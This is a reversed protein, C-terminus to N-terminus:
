LWPQWGQWIRGLLNPDTAQDILCDVQERVSQCIHGSIRARVNRDPSGKVIKELAQSYPKNAHVSSKLESITIAAPSWLELKRQANEVKLEVYQQEFTSPEMVSDDKKDKFNGVTKMAENKWDVLPEKVFVDMVATIVERRAHLATLTHVMDTRLLGLADLPLLFNVLQNTLRFPVLEPVPLLIVGTGFSYGFDIPILSGSSMDVLTNALHRDGVGAVYGCISIVSLSKAFQSRLALFSEASTAWRAVGARFTDWPLQGELYRMKQTVEDSSAKQYLNRYCEPPNQSPGGRKMVWDHYQARLNHLFNLPANKGERSLSPVKCLLGDKVVDELVCTNEVFQLLGCSKSVPVVAYTRITLGRRAAQSDRQLISNMVEFLQEIRQDLRLDEGGKVVFKYEKEDSGRMTLIKPRQKSSLCVLTQDFGVLKVHSDPRPECFGSYQGPIEVPAEKGGWGSRSVSSGEDDLSDQPTVAVQTLQDFEAMWKSLHGLSMVGTQLNQMSKQLNALLDGVASMFKKEDMKALKSGNEGLAKIVRKTWDRAFKFNYEGAGRNRMNNVDLCDEYVEAFVKVAKEAGAVICNKMQSLGDKFRQEPFTLDELGRVMGELASSKLLTGLRRTRRRGLPGFDKESVHFPFYLAQPYLKAIDELLPILIGGVEQDLVALMQPIWPIFVWSPVQKIASAFHVHTEPHQGVLSLVRALGHQARVSTHLSVAEIMYKVIVTPYSSAPPLGATSDGQLIRWKLDNSLEMNKSAKLLEDCFLGFNLLVKAMQHSKKLSGETSSGSSLKAAADSYSSYASGLLSVCDDVTSITGDAKSLQNIKMWAVQSSVSAELVKLGLKWDQSDAWPKRATSAIYSLVQLLMDTAETAQIAKVRNAQLCRLKVLGKFFRYDLAGKTVTGQHAAMYEEMYSQAANYAGVRTLGRAAEHFIHARERELKSALAEPTSDIGDQGDMSRSGTSVLTNVLGQFKHFFVLRNQVIDDWAEVGDMKSSPWRHRWEIIKRPFHERRRNTMLDLFEELEVIKQLKEVQRHRAGTALPHLATWHKRFSRYCHSIYFRARDFQDNAVAVTALQTGYDKMLVERKSPDKLSTQIFDDAMSRYTSVKAAGRIFLGLYPEELNPDWLKELDPEESDDSRVQTLTDELLLQWRNLELLCALRQNYWIDQEVQSAQDGTEDEVTDLAQDYLVLARSPDGGLQAELARRSVPKETIKKQYVSLVIDEEGLEKYLRALELWAEQLKLGENTVKGAQGKQRKSSSGPAPTDSNTEHLIEGELMLIGSHFNASKLSARGVLKPRVWITPDELCIAEVSGVFSIGNRTKELAKEVGKAIQGKLVATRDKQRGGSQSYVTRCIVTLLLRAFTGDKEALSSLPALIDEHKIEIDPLEGTRYRRMIRVKTARESAQQAARAERRKRANVVSRITQSRAAGTPIRRRLGLSSGDSTGLEQSATQSPGGIPKRAMAYLSSEQTAQPYSASTDQTQSLTVSYTARIMGAQRPYRSEEEEEEQQSLAAAQSRSDQSHATQSLSFLPTMPLSGGIYSTDITYDHFECDSLPANFVKRTYDVSEECLKLLLVASYQAWSEEVSPDYMQNIMEALRDRLDQSLTSHWFKQLSSRVSEAPDTLGALLSRAVLESPESSNSSYFYILLDYYAQRCDVNEHTPFTECLVPLLKQQVKQDPVDKMLEMLLQLCKLQAFEDRHTLVKTFTPLLMNLLGRLCSPFRLFIDLAIVRFVGPLKPVLDVLLSSFSEIYKPFRFTIKNLINLFFELNSEKCFKLLIQKLPSELLKEDIPRRFEQAAEHRQKMVIGILEASAEYIEKAKFTLNELLAQYLDKEPFVDNSADYLQLGSAAIAGFLQLGLIRHMKVSRDTGSASRGGFVVEKLIILKDLELDAKWSDLFVRIIDVNARLVPTTTHPSVRILHTVFASAVGPDPPSPLNWQLITICIDRLIYHFTMGGSREPDTLVTQVLPVIWAQAHPAFVKWSKTVVKTLFLRINIHTGANQLTSHMAKMWEPMERHGSGFRSHLAEILRLLVGMCPHQDFDDQDAPIFDIAEELSSKEEQSVTRDSDGGANGDEDVSVQLSEETPAKGVFSSIVAPEQSLGINVVYQSSLTSTGSMGQLSRRAKRQARMGSVTQSATSFQYTQVPLERYVKETDVLHQWIMGAQGEKFLIGFVKEQEQTRLTIAALCKYASIHLDRWLATNEPYLYTPPDNKARAESMTLKILPANPASPTIHEKISPADVRAFLVEVLMYHCAKVTLSEEEKEADLSEVNKALVDTFGKIRPAYWKAVFDPPAANVLPVFVREILARKLRPAKTSDGLVRICLNFCATRDEGINQAFIDISETLKRLAFKPPDPLLPFIVELLIVSCSLSVAELLRSLMRMYMARQNSGKPLDAERVLLHQSVVRTLSRCLRSHFEETFAPKLLLPILAIAHTKLSIDAEKGASTDVGAGDLCSIFSDQIFNRASEETQLLNETSLDLLMVKQLIELFFQKEALEVNMVCPQLCHLHHFLEKLFSGRSVDSGQQASTIQDDLVANLLLRATPNRVAADLILPLCDRFAFKLRQVIIRRFNLYFVGGPTVKQSPRRLNETSPHITTAEDLCLEVLKQVSAGLALSFQLMESALSELLPPCERGIRYVIIMLKEGMIQARSKGLISVLSGSLHLHQYGKLLSMTDEVGLGGGELNFDFTSLDYKRDDLLNVLRTRLGETFKSSAVSLRQMVGVSLKALEDAFGQTDAVVFGLERPRLLALCLLEIFGPENLPILGELREMDIDDKNVRSPLFVGASGTGFESDLVQRTFGLLHFVAGRVLKGYSDREGPTLSQWQSGSEPTSFIRHLFSKVVASSDTTSRLESTTVMEQRLAWEYWHLSRTFAALQHRAEEVSWVDFPRDEEEYSFVGVISELDTGQEVKVRFWSALSGAALLRCIFSLLSMCRTRSTEQLQATQHLLWDLFEDLTLFMPRDKRTRELASINREVLKMINDLTKNMQKATGTQIDDLEALRLSKICFFIIEFIYRDVINSNGRLIPYTRYAAMAAGLRKYPNPHDMRNYLRRLMSAVNVFDNKEPPAHRVSWSMFEGFCAACFERLSGSEPDVLGDLIADLLAMTEPNERQQNSTFWHILQKVFESFLQRTVQEVDVALQLVAPLLRRYIKDLYVSRDNENKRHVPGKASNGLMLLCLAQLLESATVKTRRDSSSVALEVVRSLLPDLWIDFKDDRFPLTFQIRDVSDWALGGTGAVQLLDLEPVLNHNFSGIQGLFKQVRVQTVEFSGAESSGDSIEAKDVESIYDSLCRTIIPLWQELERPHLQHWRELADMAVSALPPYTCYERLYRRFLHLCLAQHEKSVSPGGETEEDKSVKFLSKWEEESAMGKADSAYNECADFSRFFSKSDAVKLTVTLLKYNGSILPYQHSLEMVCCSFPYVWKMFLHAFSRSLFEETFEVLNLYKRMHALNLPEILELETEPEVPSVDADDQRSPSTISPRVRYKLNLETLAKMISRIISDFVLVQIEKVIVTRAESKSKDLEAENDTEDHPVASQEEASKDLFKLLQCWLEVYQPWLPLGTEGPAGETTEMTRQLTSWVVNSLFITFITGKLYMAEFLASMTIYIAHRQKPFLNPFQYFINGTVEAIFSVMFDEVSDFHIVMDAFAAILTVSHGLFDEYGDGGGSSPTGGLSTLRHFVKKLTEKGSFRVILPSLKGLGRIALSQLKKDSYPEDLIDFFAAMFHKYREQVNQLRSEEHVFCRSVQAIFSNFAGFGADRLLANTHTCYVQLWSLIDKSDQVLRLAFLKAHRSLLRLGAKVVEYRKIDERFYIIQVLYTYIKRSTEVTGGAPLSEDFWTLLSDLCKIVGSVLVFVPDKSSQRLQEDLTDLCIKLLINVNEEGFTRPFYEVLYGLLVLINARLTGSSKAKRYENLLMQGFMWDLNVVSPTNRTIDTELLSLIPCLAAAQVAKSDDRRFVLLCKEKVFEIHPLVRDGIQQIFESVFTFCSERAKVVSREKVPLLLQVVNFIGDERDFVLAIAFSIDEDSVAQKCLDSVDSILSNLDSADAGMRAADAEDKLSSMCRVLKQDM